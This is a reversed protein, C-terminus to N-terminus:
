IVYGGNPSIIQGTTFEDEILRQWETDKNYRYGKLTARTAYIKVLDPAIENICLTILSVKPM